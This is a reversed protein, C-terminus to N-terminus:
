SISKYRDSHFFSIFKQNYIIINGFLVEHPTRPLAFDPTDPTLFLESSTQLDGYFKIVDIIIPRLKVNNSVFKHRKVHDMFFQFLFFMHINYLFQCHITQLSKVSNPLLGLRCSKFFHTDFFKLREPDHELWSVIRDWVCKEDQIFFIRIIM